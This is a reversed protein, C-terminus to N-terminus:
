NMFFFRDPAKHRVDAGCLAEAAKQVRGFDQKAAYALNELESRERQEKIYELSKYQELYKASGMRWLDCRRIYSVLRPDRIHLFTGDDDEWVKWIFPVRERTPITKIGFQVEVTADIIRALMWRKVKPCWGVILSDDHVQSRIRKTEKSNWNIRKIDNWQTETLIM